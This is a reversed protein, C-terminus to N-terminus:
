VNEKVRERTSTEGRNRKQGFRLFLKEEKRRTFEGPAVERSRARILTQDRRRVGGRRAGLRSLYYERVFEVANSEGTRRRFRRIRQAIESANRELSRRLKKKRSTEFVVSRRPAAVPAVAVRRGRVGRERHVVVVFGEVHLRRAEGRRQPGAGLGADIERSVHEPRCRVRADVKELRVASIIYAPCCEM